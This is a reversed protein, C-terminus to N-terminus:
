YNASEKRDWHSMVGWMLSPNHRDATFVHKTSYSKRKDKYNRIEIELKHIFYLKCPKKQTKPTTQWFSLVLNM